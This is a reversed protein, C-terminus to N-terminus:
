VIEPLVALSKGLRLGGRLALVASKEGDFLCGYRGARRYVGLMVGGEVAAHRMAACGGYLSKGTDVIRVLQHLVAGHGHIPILFAKSAPRFIFSSLAFSVTSRRM